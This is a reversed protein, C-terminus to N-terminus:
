IIDLSVMGDGKAYCSSGAAETILSDKPKKNENFPTSKGTGILEDSSTDDIHIIGHHTYDDHIDVDFSAFHEGLQIQLEKKKDRDCNYMGNARKRKGERSTSVACPKEVRKIHKQFKRARTRQAVCSSTM